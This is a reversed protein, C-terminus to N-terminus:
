HNLKKQQFKTSIGKFKTSIGEFKTLIEHYSHGNFGHILWGTSNFFLDEEVVRIWAYRLSLTLTSAQLILAVLSGYRLVNTGPKPTSDDM